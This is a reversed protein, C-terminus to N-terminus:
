TPRPEDRAPARRHRAARDLALRLGETGLRADYAPAGREIRWSEDLPGACVPDFGLEDIFAAVRAASPADDAYVALARRDTSGSPRAQAGILDARIHNFAKVVRPRPSAADLHLQLMGSVTRTGAELDPILGDRDPYYNNTDIVIKGALPAVPVSHMRHLPVCVIAIDAEAAADAARAARARPGLARILDSLSSPERSNSMVVDYGRSLAAKALNTGILGAGIFGLTTM